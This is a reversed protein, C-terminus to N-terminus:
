MLVCPMYRYIYFLSFIILGKVFLIHQYWLGYVNQEYVIITIPM